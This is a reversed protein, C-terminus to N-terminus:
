HKTIIVYWNDRDYGSIFDDQGLSKVLDDLEKEKFLHYYREYVEKGGTNSKWTVFSDQKDFCRKGSQEFAWVFILIKGGKKVVRLLEAIAAQRRQITSFHHIVAISIAFDFLSSKFPSTIADSILSELKRNHCIEILSSSRDSGILYLNPNISLYKGNGCGMDLGLSGLPQNHLFEEIIPWPKYRTQSFHHAIQNYVQHVHKEELELDNIDDPLTINDPLTIDDPLTINDSPLLNSSSHM